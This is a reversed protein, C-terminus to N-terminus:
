NTVHMLVRSKVTHITQIKESDVIINIKLEKMTEVFLGGDVALLRVYRSTVSM